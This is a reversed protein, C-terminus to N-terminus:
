SLNDNIFKQWIEDPQWIKLMDQRAIEETEKLINVRYLFIFASVRMNLVCHVFIKKDQFQQMTEFFQQLNKRTPAEWIVPIHIYTLGLDTVTKEEDPLAQPSDKLALNIVVHYGSDRLSGLQNEDPQGASALSESITLFNTIKQLDLSM